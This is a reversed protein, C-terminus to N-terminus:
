SCVKWVHVCVINRLGGLETSTQPIDNGGVKDIAGVWSGYDEFSGDYYITCLHLTAETLPFQQMHLCTKGTSQM